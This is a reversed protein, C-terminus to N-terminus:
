KTWIVVLGCFADDGHPILDVPMTAPGAYVEIGYVAKPSQVPLPMDFPMLFGDVLVRIRCAVPNARRDLRLGRASEISLMGLRDSTVKISPIGRLVDGISVSPTRELQAPTIFTGQSLRRRREFGAYRPPALREAAGTVRLTDLDQALRTLKTSVHLSDGPDVALPVGVAEYGIKRLVLTVTGQVTLTARFEGAANTSAVTTGGLLLIEVGPLGALTGSDLVRGAIVASAPAASQAELTSTLCALAIAARVGWRAIGSARRRLQQECPPM